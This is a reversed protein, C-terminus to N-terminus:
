RHLDPPMLLLTRSPDSASMALLQGSHGSQALLHAGNRVNAISFNGFAWLYTCNAYYYQESQVPLFGAVLVKSVCHSETGTHNTVDSQLESTQRGAKRDHRRKREHQVTREAGIMVRRRRCAAANMIVRVRIAVSRSSCGIMLDNIAIGCANDIERGRM